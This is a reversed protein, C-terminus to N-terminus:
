LRFETNALLDLMRGVDQKGSGLYSEETQGYGQWLAKPPVPLGLECRHVDDSPTRPIAYCFSDAQYPEYKIVQVPTYQTLRTQLWRKVRKPVLKGIVKGGQRTNQPHYGGSRYFSCEPGRLRGNAGLGHAKSLATGDIARGRLII